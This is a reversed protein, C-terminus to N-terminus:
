ITRIQNNSEGSFLYKKTSLRDFTIEPTTVGGLNQDKYYKKMQSLLNDYKRAFNPFDNFADLAKTRINNFLDNNLVETIDRLNDAVKKLDGTPNYIDYKVSKVDSENLCGRLFKNIKRKDIDSLSSNQDKNLKFLSVGIFRSLVLLYEQQTQRREEDKMLYYDKKKSGYSKEGSYEKAKKKMDKFMQNENLKEKIKKQNEGRAIIYAYRMMAYVGQEDTASELNREMNKQENVEPDEKTRLFGMLEILAKACDQKKRDSEPLNNYLEILSRMVKKIIIEINNSIMVKDNYLPSDTGGEEIANILTKNNKYFNNADKLAGKGIGVSCYKQVFQLKEKLNKFYEKTCIGTPSLNPGLILIPKLPLIIKESKRRYTSTELFANPDTQASSTSNQPAAQAPSNTDDEDTQTRAEPQPSPVNIIEVQVGGQPLHMSDLLAKIKRNETVSASVFEKPKNQEETQAQTEATQNGQTQSEEVTSEEDDDEFQSLLDYDNDDDDHKTDKEQKSTSPSYESSTESLTNKVKVGTNEYLKSIKKRLDDSIEYSDIETVSRRLIEKELEDLEATKNVMINLAAIVIKREFDTQPNSIFDFALNELLDAKENTQVLEAAYIELLLKQTDDFSKLDKTRLYQDSITKCYETLEQKNEEFTKKPYRKLNSEFATASEIQKGAEEALHQRTSDENGIEGWFNNLRKQLSELDAKDNESTRFFEKGLLEITQLYADVRSVIDLSGLNKEAEHHIKKITTAGFTAKIKEYLDKFDGPSSPQSGTIFNAIQNADETLATTKNRANSEDNASFNQETLKELKRNLIENQQENRQEFIPNSVSVPQSDPM